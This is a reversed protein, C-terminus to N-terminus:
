CLACFEPPQRVIKQISESLYLIYSRWSALSTGIIFAHILFLDAIGLRNHSISHETIYKETEKSAGVCIWVVKDITSDYKQYVATQRVSWRNRWTEETGKDVAYRFGYMCEFGSGQTKADLAAGVINDQDWPQQSIHRVKCSPPTYDYEKRKFGFCTVFERFRPSVEFTSMLGEFLPLSPSIRTLSNVTFQLFRKSLKTL